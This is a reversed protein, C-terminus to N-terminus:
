NNIKNLQTNMDALAADITEYKGSCYGEFVGNIIEKIRDTNFPGIFQADKLIDLLISTYPLSQKYQSNEAISKKSPIQTCKINHDMMIDDRYIFEIFKLAAGSYKTKSNIALSWGTESVFKHENGFWPVAVYDFDEGYKLGFSLEGESITWPGRPVMLSRNAYLQQYGELDSGGTLGELDTVKDVIVMDALEQLAKKAEPTELNFTNDENLYNSGQELIMSLFYYSVSDWNVFDFGKEKYVGGEIKTAKIAIEKLEEWTTPYSLGDQKLLTLNVLMGGFEINFELPLGYLKDGYLLAGYTPSYTEEMVKKSFEDSLPLLSNNPAFDLAWGGWLEYIDAGGEGDILSTQTKSEFADYPFTELQIKINPNEKEFEEIVEEYAKNWPENQHAWMKLVVEDNGNTETGTNNGKSSCSVLLSVLMLVLSIKAIKKM